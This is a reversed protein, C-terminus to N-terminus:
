DNRRFHEGRRITEFDGHPGRRRQEVVWGIEFDVLVAAHPDGLAHVVAAVGAAARFAVADDHEFVGLARALGVLDRGEHLVRIEDRREADRDDVVFDDHRLRRVQDNVGIDVAIVFEIGGHIFALHQEGTEVSAIM